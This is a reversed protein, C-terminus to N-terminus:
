PSAVMPFDTDTPRLLGYGRPAGLFKNAEQLTGRGSQGFIMSKGTLASGWFLVGALL